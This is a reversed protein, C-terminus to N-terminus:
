RDIALPAGNPAGEGEGDAQDDLLSIALTIVQAQSIGRQEALRRLREITAPHLKVAVMRAKEEPPKKPGGAGPRAGGRPTMM